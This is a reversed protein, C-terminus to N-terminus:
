IFKIDPHKIEPMKCHIKPIDSIAKMHSLSFPVVHKKNLNILDEPKISVEMTETEFQTLKNKNKNKNKNM